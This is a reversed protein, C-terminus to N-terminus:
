AERPKLSVSPKGPKKTVLECLSERVNAPSAAMYDEFKKKDVTYSVIEKIPNFECPIFVAGSKYKKTDLSYVMPTKCTIKWVDFEYSREGEHQHNLASIVSATLLEKEATLKALKKNVSELKKIFEELHM